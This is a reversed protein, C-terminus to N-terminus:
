WIKVRDKEGRYLKDKEKLAFASYFGPQNAVIGNVRYESPSHPDTLLRRRM